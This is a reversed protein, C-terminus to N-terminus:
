SRDKVDFAMTLLGVKTRILLNWRQVFHRCIDRAPQGVIQMGVDHRLILLRHSTNRSFTIFSGSKGLCGQSRKGILRIRLHNIWIVLNWWERTPIIKGEGYLAMPDMQPLITKTLSSMNPPIGDVMVYILVAWSPSPKTLSACKRTSCILISSGFPALSRTLHRPPSSTYQVLLRVHSWYFTGTQFHSPSRQVM